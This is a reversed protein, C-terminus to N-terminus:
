WITLTMSGMFTFLWLCMLGSKSKARLGYLGKQKLTYDLGMKDSCMLRERNVPVKGAVICSMRVDTSRSIGNGELRFVARRGPSLVLLEILTKQLQEKGIVRARM